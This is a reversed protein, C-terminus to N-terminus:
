DGGRSVTREGWWFGIGLHGHNTDTRRFQGLDIRLLDALFTHLYWFIRLDATDVNHTLKKSNEQPTPFFRACSVASGNRTPHQAQIAGPQNLQYKQQTLLQCGISKPKIETQLLFHFMEFFVNSQPNFDHSFTPDKSWPHKRFYPYGLFPHNTISFGILISSNPPVGIKPFVRMTFQDMEPHLNWRTWAKPQSGKAIHHCHFM